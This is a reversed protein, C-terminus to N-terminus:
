HNTCLRCCMHVDYQEPHKEFVHQKFLVSHQQFKQCCENKQIDAVDLAALMPPREHITTRKKVVPLASVSHAIGKFRGDIHSLTQCYQKYPVGTRELLPLPKQTKPSSAKKIRHALLLAATYQVPTPIELLDQIIVPLATAPTQHAMNKKQSHVKKNKKKKKLPPTAADKKIKVTLPAALNPHKNRYHKQLESQKYFMKRCDPNQCIVHAGECEKHAKLHALLRAQDALRTKCNHWTCPILNVPKIEMSYTSQMCLISSLFITLFKKM